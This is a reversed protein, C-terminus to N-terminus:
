PFEKSESRTTQHRSMLKAPIDNITEFLAQLEILAQLAQTHKEQDLELNQFEDEDLVVQRGDTFVLLDLALDQYLIAEDTLQAPTAINCYWGRLHDDEVAHIEFINFWRNIAYYELFRDGNRLPMGFLDMDERGFCAELIWAGNDRWVVRGRYRFTEEGAPNQKIVLVSPSDILNNAPNSQPLFQEFISKM